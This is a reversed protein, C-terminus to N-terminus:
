RFTVFLMAALSAGCVLILALWLVSEGRRFFEWPSEIDTKERWGELAGIRGGQLGSLAAVSPPCLDLNLYNAYRVAATRAIIGSAFSSLDDLELGRVQDTSLCLDNVVTELSIARIKRERRLALAFKSVVM